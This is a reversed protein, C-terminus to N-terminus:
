FLPESHIFIHWSKKGIKLTLIYYDYSSRNNEPKMRWWYITKLSLHWTIIIKMKSFRISVNLKNILLFFFAQNIILSSHCLSFLLILTLKHYSFYFFHKRRLIRQTYLSINMFLVAHARLTLIVVFNKM